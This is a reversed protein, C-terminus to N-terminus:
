VRLHDKRKYQQVGKRGQARDTPQLSGRQGGVPKQGGRRPQDANGDEAHKLEKILRNVRLQARKAEILAKPYDMLKPERGRLIWAVWGDTMKEARQRLYHANTRRRYEKRSPEAHHRLADYLRYVDRNKQRHEKFYARLKDKNAARYAAMKKLNKERHKM